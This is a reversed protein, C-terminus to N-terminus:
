LACNLDIPTLGYKSDPTLNPAGSSISIPAFQIKPLFTLIFAPPHLPINMPLSTAM